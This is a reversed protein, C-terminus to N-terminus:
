VVHYRLRLILIHNHHHCTGIQHLGQFIRHHSSYSYLISQSSEFHSYQKNYYQVLVSDLAKLIHSLSNQPYMEMLVPKYQKNKQQNFKTIEIYSNNMRKSHLLGHTNTAFNLIIKLFKFRRLHLGTDWKLRCSMSITPHPLDKLFM